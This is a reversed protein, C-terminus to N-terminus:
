AQGGKIFANVILPLAESICIDYVNVNKGTADERLDKYSRLDYHIFRDRYTKKLTINEEIAKQELDNAPRYGLLLEEICWRNHEVEALYDVEQASLCYLTDWDHVTYGLSRMKTAVAMANYINSWKKANSLKKWSEDAKKWDIEVPTYNDNYYCDYVHNVVKAMRILPMTVDLTHGNMGFPIIDPMKTSTLMQLMAADATRFFVPIRNDGIGSPMKMATRMNEGEDDSCLVVTLQQRDSAAWYGLKQRLIESNIGGKVFEWEVDIFDERTGHFQPKHISKVVNSETNALDIFRHFSNAFLHEHRGVFDGMADDIHSDVITIRTRLSHDRTYNPFHCVLAAHKAIEQAMANMGFIVLHVCKDSDKGIPERDLPPMDSDKTLSPCTIKGAWLSEFSFPYIEVKDQISKELDWTQMMSMIDPTHTLMHVRVQKEIINDKLLAAIYATNRMDESIPSAGDTVSTAIVIEDPMEHIHYDQFSGFKIPYEGIDQYKRVIHPVMDHDGIIHIRRQAM